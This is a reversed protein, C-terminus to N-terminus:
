AKNKERILHEVNQLATGYALIAYQIYLKCEDTVYPDDIDGASKKRTAHTLSVEYNEMIQKIEKHLEALVSAHDM